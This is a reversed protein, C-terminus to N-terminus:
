CNLFFINDIEASIPMYTIYTKNKKNRLRPVKPSTYYKITRLITANM